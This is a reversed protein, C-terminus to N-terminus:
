FGDLVIKKKKSYILFNLIVEKVLVVSKWGKLMKKELFIQSVYKLSLKTVLFLSILDYIWTFKQILM